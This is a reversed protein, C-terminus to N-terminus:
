WAATAMVSQDGKMITQVDEPLLRTRYIRVEDVVGDLYSTAKDRGNRGVQLRKLAPLDCSSRQVAVLKGDVYLERLTPSIFVGAIHHWRGDNVAPGVLRKGDGGNRIRVTAKGYTVGIHLYETKMGSGAWVINQSPDSETSRVWACLTLPFQLDKLPTNDLDVYSDVGNFVVASAIRGNHSLAVANRLPAKEDLRDLTWYGALADSQPLARDVLRFVWNESSGPRIAGLVTGGLLGCVLLSRRVRGSRPLSRDALSLLRNKMAEKAGRAAPRSGTAALGPTGGGRQYLGLLLEGYEAPAIGSLVVADDCSKECELRTRRELWHILPHFWLLCSLFGLALQLLWDGHRLHALEHRLMAARAGAGYQFFDPPLVLAARRGYGCTFPGSIARSVLVRPMPVRGQTCARAVEGIFGSRASLPVAQRLLGRLRLWLRGRAVLCWGAGALWVGGALLWLSALWGQPARSEAVHHRVWTAVAPTLPQGEMEPGVREVFDDVPIPAVTPPKWFGLHWRPLFLQALPLLLIALGFVALVTRRAAASKRGLLRMAALACGALVTAKLTVSFLWALSASYM